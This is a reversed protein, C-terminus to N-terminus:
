LQILSRPEEILNGCVYRHLIHRDDGVYIFRELREELSYNFYNLESDDIVLADFDYGEEFSGVKGFFSGGTKTAIYFAESNSLFPIEKNSNAWFLKSVQIAYIMTKFISCTHGGSIDSGFAVRIDNDLFKRIPMMGSGVNLNSSPCHVAIVNNEKMLAMEERSSFSCHAMLTPSQGLLNYKNYVEGYFNSTPHLEKVWAIENKNESLHSQVSVKYKISLEGLGKLLESSCTPVFRPTIIPKVIPSKDKYKVIIEETDMLSDESTECLYPPSNLDMNVKGVYAGLGSKIFLEMLDMSANKHITAFVAIRTTGQKWVEKIFREYVNRSYDLDKFKSEEPFTYDNLWPLLEKDMAMGLHRFQPAHAHLDNMGPIILKNSYDIIKFDNYEEPLIKYVNKVKGNVIVIYGNEITFFENPTPTFIINGKFIKTSDIISM